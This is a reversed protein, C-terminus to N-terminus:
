WVERGGEVGTLDFAPVFSESQTGGEQWWVHEFGLDYAYDLVRGYEAEGVTRALFDGRGRCEANPTYQNMVSVDAVPGCAEWVCDLVAESERVHGPLVLHRVIVGRTMIGEADTARGGKEEVSAQMRALAPFCAEAYDPAASLKALEPGAYKADALWVDVFEALEGVLEAREYGSTNYVIPLDMGHRRAIAVARAATPAFHTATVLNITHAGQEELELMMGALRGASVEVGFGGASIERNQCFVCKLNCGSFFIAGSGRTGSVPPEEWFHLAARAVKPTADM